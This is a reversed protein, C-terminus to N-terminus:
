PYTETTYEWSCPLSGESGILSPCNRTCSLSKEAEWSPSQGVISSPWLQIFHLAPNLERWICQYLQKHCRGSSSQHVDLRWKLQYGPYRRVFRSALWERGGLRLPHEKWAKMHPHTRRDSIKVDGVTKILRSTFFFGFRSFVCLLRCKNQDLEM